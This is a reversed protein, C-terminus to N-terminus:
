VKWQPRNLTRSFAIAQGVLGVVAIWLVTRNGLADALAGGLPAGIVIMGRNLSRMTANARGLLREPTVTQRYGMEVPGDLGLSFGFLFQAACLLVLGTTGNTAMPILAYAVPTLWRGIVLVPAVGLLRGARDSLSAGLLGGVGGLAYTTGLAVADFGLEDLVFFTSVTSVMGTCLFWVHSTVTLPSLTPHRYVWSLGERVERRLDRSEAPEFREQTRLTALVLGSVLYSVADVVIAVPAGVVKVLWGALMPGASQAVARTQEMRANATTLLATPVLQPLFSQHAADYILSLAGFVTVLVVLTPMDLLGAMGLSPILGLVVARALDTGVLLPRRRWRDVLVGAFLGFVLYPVWRAAGLVGLETASANLHVVALVQLALTTVYTGVLSVTDAAWFRAFGPQDIM